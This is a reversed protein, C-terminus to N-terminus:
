VQDASEASDLTQVETQEVTGGKSGFGVHCTFFCRRRLMDKAQLDVMMSFKRRRTSELSEAFQFQGELTKWEYAHLVDSRLRYRFLSRRDEDKVPPWMSDLPQPDAPHFGDNIAEVDGDLKIDIACYEAINRSRNVATVRLRFDWYRHLGTRPSNRSIECAVFEASAELRPGRRQLFLSEVLAHPAKRTEGDLRLWYAGDYQHPPYASAEIDAVLVNGGDCPILAIRVGAPIPSVKSLLSRHADDKAIAPFPHFKGQCIKVKRGGPLEKAKEEPAGIVLLGGGSNLFASIQDGHESLKTGDSKYELTQSEPEEKAIFERLDNLEVADVPKGLYLESFSL